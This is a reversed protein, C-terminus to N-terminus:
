RSPLMLALTMLLSAAAACGLGINLELVGMSNEDVFRDAVFMGPFVVPASVVCIVFRESIPPRREPIASTLKFALLIGGAAALLAMLFAGVYAAYMM